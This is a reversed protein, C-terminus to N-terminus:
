LTQRQCRTIHRIPCKCRNLWLEKMVKDCRLLWLFPGCTPAWCSITLAINCRKSLKLRWKVVLIIRVWMMEWNAKKGGWSAAQGAEGAAWCFLPFYGPREPVQGSLRQGVRGVPTPYFGAGRRGAPPLQRSLLPHCNGVLPGGDPSHGSLLVLM